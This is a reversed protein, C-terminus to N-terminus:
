NKELIDNLIDDSCDYSTLKIEDDCLYRINCKCMNKSIYYSKIYNSMVLVYDCYSRGVSRM